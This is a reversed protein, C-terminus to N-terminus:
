EDPQTHFLATELVEYHSEPAAESVPNAIEFTQCVLFVDRQLNHTTSSERDLIVGHLLDCANNVAVM